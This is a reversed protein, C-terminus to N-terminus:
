GQVGEYVFVPLLVLAEDFNGAATGGNCRGPRAQYVQRKLEGGRMMVGVGTIM